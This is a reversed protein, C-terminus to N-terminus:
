GFDTSEGEHEEEALWQRDFQRDAAASKRIAGISSPDVPKVSIKKRHNPNSGPLKPKNGQAFARNGLGVWLFAVLSSFFLFFIRQRIMRLVVKHPATVGKLYCLLRLIGLEQSWNRLIRTM